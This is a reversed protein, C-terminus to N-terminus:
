RRPFNSPSESSAKGRNEGKKKFPHCFQHPNLYEPRLGFRLGFLFPNQVTLSRRNLALYKSCRSILPRPSHIQVV